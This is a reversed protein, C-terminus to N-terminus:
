HGCDQNSYCDFWWSPFAESAITITVEYITKGGGQLKSICSTALTFPARALCAFTTRKPGSCSGFFLPPITIALLSAVVVLQLLIHEGLILPVCRSCSYVPAGQKGTYIQLSLRRLMEIIETMIKSIMWVLCPAIFQELAYFSTNVNAKFALPSANNQVVPLRSKIMCLHDCLIEVILNCSSTFSPWKGLWGEWVKDPQWHANNSLFAWERHLIMDYMVKRPRWLVRDIVMNVWFGKLAETGRQHHLLELRWTHLPCKDAFNSKASANLCIKTLDCSHGVNPDGQSRAAGWCCQLAGRSHWSRWGRQVACSM